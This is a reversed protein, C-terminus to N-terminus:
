DGQIQLEFSFVETSRPKNWPKAHEGEVWSIKLTELGEQHRM